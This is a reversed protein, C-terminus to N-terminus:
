VKNVAAIPIDITDSRDVKGIWWTYGGTFGAQPTMLGINLAEQHKYSSTVMEQGLGVGATFTISAGNLFDKLEKENPPRDPYDLIWGWVAGVNTVPLGGGVSSGVTVYENDYRDIILVGAGSFGVGSVGAPTDKGISYARYDATRPVFPGIELNLDNMPAYQTLGSYTEKIGVSKVWQSFKTVLTSIPAFIVGKQDVLWEGKAFTVPTYGLCSYTAKKNANDWNVKVNLYNEQAYQTVAYLTETAGSPDIYLLTDILGSPDIFNVPDNHCYAYYNVGNQM